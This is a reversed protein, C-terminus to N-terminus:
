LQRVQDAYGRSVTLETGARDKLRVKYRGAFWRVMERIFGVNVIYSRHIRIFRRKDLRIELAAITDDIAYEKELTHLFTYKERAEFYVIDELPILFLKDGVTVKIRQFPPAALQVLVREIQEQLGPGPANFMREMKDVTKDLRVQEVPKLLYDVSNEEFAKLAYENYATVFVIFPKVSLQRVIDFGNLGPMQVDLFLVDPGLAPIRALAEEGSGAEGIVEIRDAYKQLLRKLRKRALDEDDVIVARLHM